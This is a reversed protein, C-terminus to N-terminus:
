VTEKADKKEALKVVWISIEYLLMVPIAMMIQTVIDPPTLFAAVIFTVLIAYKRKAALTKSDILGIRAIFFMFIPLEFIIGFALLLKCSFSLFERLTLM